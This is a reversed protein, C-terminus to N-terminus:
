LCFRIVPSSPRAFIRTPLWLCCAAEMTLLAAANAESGRRSVCSWRGLLLDRVGLNKPDLGLGAGDRGEFALDFGMRALDAPPPTLAKRSLFSDAALVLRSTVFPNSEVNPYGPSPGGFSTGGHLLGLEGSPGGGLRLRRDVAELPHPPHEGPLLGM